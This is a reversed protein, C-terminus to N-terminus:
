ASRAHGPQDQRLGVPFGRCYVRYARGTGRNGLVVMHEALWGEKRALWSAIRLALCKKGLLVNGGYGSNVSWIANDEPFHMIFRKNPDFDGVSHIGRVFDDSDRVVGSPRVRHADHHAHQGRRLSDTLQMCAKAYPSQPHGMMYPLVYMTRGTMCGDSLKTM